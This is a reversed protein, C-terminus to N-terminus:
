PLLIRRLLRMFVPKWTPVLEPQVWLRLAVPPQTWVFPPGGSIDAVASAYAQCHAYLDAPDVGNPCAIDMAALILNGGAAVEEHASVLSMPSEFADTPDEPWTSAAHVYEYVNEFEKNQARVLQASILM